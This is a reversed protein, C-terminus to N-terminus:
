KAKPVTVVVEHEKRDVKFEKTKAPGPLTVLQEYEGFETVAETSNKDTKKQQKSQSVALRLANNGESTVKVSSIDTGPLLAHVEYHDGKDRVDMSASFGPENRMSLFNQNMDFETMARSFFQNMDNQMRQMEAFPDWAGSSASASPTAAVGPPPTLAVFPTPSPPPETSPQRGALCTGAAMTLVSFTVAIRYKTKMGLVVVSNRVANFISFGARMASELDMPADRGKERTTSVRKRFKKICKPQAKRIEFQRRSSVNFRPSQGLEDSRFARRM